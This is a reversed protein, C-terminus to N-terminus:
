PTVVRERVIAELEDAARNRVERTEKDMVGDENRIRRVIEAPDYEGFTAWEFASCLGHLVGRLALSRRDDAGVGTRSAHVSADAWRVAYEQVLARIRGALDRPQQAAGNKLAAYEKARAEAGPGSFLAAYVEGESAHDIAEVVWEDPCARSPACEFLMKSDTMSRVM